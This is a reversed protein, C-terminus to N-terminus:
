IELKKKCLLLKRPSPYSDFVKIESFYKELEIIFNELSYWNYKETYWKSVYVDEKPIFEIIANKKTYNSVIEVFTDFRVSEKFVLHHLIALVLVNDGKLPIIESQYTAENDTGLAADDSRIASSNDRKVLDM